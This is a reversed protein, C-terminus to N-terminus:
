QVVPFDNSEAAHSYCIEKLVVGREPFGMFLLQMPKLRTALFPWCSHHDPNHHLIVHLGFTTNLFDLLINARHLMTGDQVSWQM